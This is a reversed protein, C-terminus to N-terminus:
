FKPKGPAVGVIIQYVISIVTGIWWFINYGDSYNLAKFSISGNTWLSLFLNPVFFFGHLLGFYWSYNETQSIQSLFIALLFSIAFGISVRITIKIGLTFVLISYLGLFVVQSWTNWVNISWSFISAILYMLFLVAFEM